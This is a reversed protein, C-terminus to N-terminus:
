EEGGTMYTFYLDYFSRSAPLVKQVEREQMKSLNIKEQEDLQKLRNIFPQPNYGLKRIDHALALISDEDNLYKAVEDAFQIPRNEIDAFTENTPNRLSPPPKWKQTIKTLEPRSKYALKAAHDPSIKFKSAIGDALEESGDVEAYADRASRIASEIDKPNTTLKSEAMANLNTDTMAIHKGVDGWKQILESESLKNKPDALDDEINRLLKTQITGPIKGKGKHGATAEKGWHTELGARLRAQQADAVNGINQLEKFNSRQADVDAEVRPMADQPTPYTVPNDRSLQAATAFKENQSPEVWPTRQAQSIEVTKLGKNKTAKAAEEAFPSKATGPMPQGQTAPLEVPKASAIPAPTTSPRVPNNEQERRILQQRLFPELQRMQEPTAGAKNLVNWRSLPDTEPSAKLREIGRSLNEREVQKPIESGFGEGFNRGTRGFLDSQEITQVM